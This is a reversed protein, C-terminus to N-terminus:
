AVSKSADQPSTEDHIRRPLHCRVLTGNESEIEVWGNHLEVFSNVLTLGLGAGARQGSRSKSEFREFVTPKVEEAIGPGNDAVAIQVDEGVIRGSLTITSGDPAYRFANNLLSYVVQRIRRDDGLFMGANEACDVALTIHAKAAWQHSHKAVDSLLAFLDLRTLELRLGGSEILALDLIDDILTTLTGAGSVINKVYDAQRPNLAGPVGNDLMEAFGMITNLPRACSM